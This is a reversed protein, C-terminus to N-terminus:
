EPYPTPNKKLKLNQNLDANCHYYYNKYTLPTFIYSLLLNLFSVMNKANLYYKSINQLQYCSFFDISVYIM